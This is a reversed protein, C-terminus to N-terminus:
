LNEGGAPITEGPSIDWQLDVSGEAGTFRLTVRRTNPGLIPAGDGHLGPFTIRFTQRFPTVSEFFARERGGPRAIREISVPAVQRGQDDLLLARWVARDSSLDSERWSRGMLTVFFRHQRTAEAYAARMLEARAGEEIGYNEAYRVVYAHRFEWSEFTATVDLTDQMTSFDFSDDSRTWARYIAGYDESTFARPATTLTLSRSGACGGLVLMLAFLFRTM